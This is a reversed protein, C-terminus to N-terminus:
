WVGRILRLWLVDELPLLEFAKPGLARYDALEQEARQRQQQPLRQNYQEGSSNVAWGEVNALTLAGSHFTRDTFEDSSPQESFAAQLHPPRLPAPMMQTAGLSSVGSMGSGGRSGRREARGELTDWGDPGDDQMSRFEGESEYRGRADQIAIAFGTLAARVALAEAGARGDMGPRQKSYPTRSVVLPFKGNVPTAADSSPLYIDTALLVGDRMPIMVNRYVVAHPYKQLSAMQAAPTTM